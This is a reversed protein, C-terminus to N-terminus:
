CTARKGGHHRHGGHAWLSPPYSKIMNRQQAGRFVIPDTAYHIACDGRYDLAQDLTLRRGNVSYWGGYEYHVKTMHKWIDIYYDTRTM